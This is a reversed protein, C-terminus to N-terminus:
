LSFVLRIAGIVVFAVVVIWFVHQVWDPIQVGFKRLAVYVLAIGAAVAVILILWDALSWAAFNVVVAPLVTV